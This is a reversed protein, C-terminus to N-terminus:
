FIAIASKGGSYLNLFVDNDSLTPVPLSRILRFPRARGDTARDLVLQM